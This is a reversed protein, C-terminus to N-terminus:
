ATFSISISVDLSRVHHWWGQPVFVIEGPNLVVEIPGVDRYLPHRDFDPEEPDVDSFVGISNYLLHTRDPPILIWRKHGFVHAMVLSVPDYHLPTVTGAPGFWLFARSDLLRSRDIFPPIDIEGSALVRNLLAQNCIQNSAVMYLDNSQGISQVIQAYEWMPMTRRLRDCNIEYNPDSNRGQQVQVPIDGYRDAFYEPSWKEIASWGSMMGTVIAPKSPDLTTLSQYREITTTQHM